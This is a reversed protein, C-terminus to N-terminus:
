ERNNIWTGGPRAAGQQMTHTLEHALLQKGTSSELNNTGEGLYIDQGHTFAQASVARNLQAAEGDTHLLVGSFDAGFRPEMFARTSAPLPSGSSTSLRSEFDAGPEFSVLPDSPARQVLAKTQIEDDEEPAHQSCPTIAATVTGMQAVEEEALTQRQVSAQDTVASPSTPMRIVQDAVRDAEQEYADGPQSIALKPQIV